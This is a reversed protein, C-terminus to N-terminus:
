QSLLTTWDGKAKNKASAWSSGSNLESAAADVLEKAKEKLHEHKAWSIQFVQGPNSGGEGFAAYAKPYRMNRYRTAKGSQAQAKAKASAKAKAKAKVKAKGTKGKAKKRQVGMAEAARKVAAAQGEDRFGYPRDATGYELIDMLLGAAKPPIRHAREREALEELDLKEAASLQQAAPGPSFGDWNPWDREVESDESPGPEPAPPAAAAAARAVAPLQEDSALDEAAAAQAAEPRAEWSPPARPFCQAASKYAEIVQLAAMVETQAVGKCRAHWRQPQQALLRMHALAIRAQEALAVARVRIKDQPYGVEQLAQAAAAEMCTQNVVASPQHQFISLLLDVLFGLGAVDPQASYTQKEYEGLTNELGGKGNLARVFTQTLLAQASFGAVRGKAM